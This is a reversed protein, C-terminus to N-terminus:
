DVSHCTKKTIKCASGKSLIVPENLRKDLFFSLSFSKGEYEINLIYGNCTRLKNDLCRVIRKGKYRIIDYFNITNLYESDFPLLNNYITKLTTFDKKCSPHLKRIELNFFDLFDLNIFNHQVKNEIPFIFGFGKIIIYLEDKNNMALLEDFISIWNDRSKNFYDKLIAM